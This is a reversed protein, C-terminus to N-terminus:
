ALLQSKNLYKFKGTEFRNNNLIILRSGSGDSIGIAANLATYSQESFLQAPTIKNLRFSDESFGEILVQRMNWDDRVITDIVTQTGTKQICACQMLDALKPCTIVFM